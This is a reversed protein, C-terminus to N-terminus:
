LDDGKVLKAVMAGTASWWVYALLLCLGVGDGHALVRSAIGLELVVAFM